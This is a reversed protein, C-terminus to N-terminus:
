AALNQRWGAVRGFYGCTRRLHNLFQFNPDWGTEGQGQQRDIWWWGAWTQRTVGMNGTQKLHKYRWWQLLLLCTRGTKTLRFTLFCHWAAHGAVCHRPICPLGGVCCGTQWGALRIGPPLNPSTPVTQHHPLGNPVLQLQM